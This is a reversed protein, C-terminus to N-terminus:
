LKRKNKIEELIDIFLYIQSSPNDLAKLKKARNIAKLQRSELDLKLKNDISGKKYNPIHKKLKMHCDDTSIPSKQEQYHLLLWLEFTPNSTILECDPIDELKKLINIVDSDYILFTKDKAHTVKDSKYNKIYKSTIRNGAVKSDIFIPIRYKTKLYCIYQEETEGECFVFFTPNISKGKSKRIYRSM